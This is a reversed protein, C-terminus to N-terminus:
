YTVCRHMSWGHRIGHMNYDMASIMWHRGLQLCHCFGCVSLNFLKSQGFTEQVPHLHGHAQFWISELAPDWLLRQVSAFLRTQCWQSNRVAPRVLDFSGCGQSKIINNGIHHLMAFTFVNFLSSVNSISLIIMVNNFPFCKFRFM